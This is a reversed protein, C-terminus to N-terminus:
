VHRISVLLAEPSSQFYWSSSCVCFGDLFHSRHNYKVSWGPLWCEQILACGAGLAQSECSLSDLSIIKFNMIPETVLPKQFSDDHDTGYKYKRQM